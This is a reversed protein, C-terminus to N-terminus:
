CLNLLGVNLKSFLKLFGPACQHHWASNTLRSALTPKMQYGNVMSQNKRGWGCQSISSSFVAFEIRISLSFANSTRKQTHLKTNMGRFVCPKSIGLSGYFRTNSAFFSKTKMRKLCVRYTASFVGGEISDFGGTHIRRTNAVFLLSVSLEVCEAHSIGTHVCHQM